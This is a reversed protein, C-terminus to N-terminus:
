ARGARALSAGHGFVEDDAGGFRAIERRDGLERALEHADVVLRVRRPEKQGLADFLSVRAPQRALDRAGLGDDEDGVM